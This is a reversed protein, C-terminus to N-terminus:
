YGGDGDIVFLDDSLNNFGNNCLMSEVPDYSNDDCSGFYVTKGIEIQKLANDYQEKVYSDDELIQEITNRGGWGHYEVYYDDLENKTKVVATSYKQIDVEMRITFTPKDSAIIFSSSSSNSVFGSRIKM